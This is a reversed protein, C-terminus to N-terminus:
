HLAQTAQAVFPALHASTQQVWTELSGESVVAGLLDQLVMVTRASPLLQGENLYVAFAQVQPGYQVPATVTAPFQGSTIHTCRACRVQEVIHDTAALRLPPLDHVQRVQQGVTPAANLPEQCAACHTPRHRVMHDPPAQRRLTTGEHGRQGGSRKGSAPRVRGRRRYGDSSPPKSSNHSDKGLRAELAAIRETLQTILTRLGANEAELQAIRQDKETETM